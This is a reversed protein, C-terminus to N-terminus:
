WEKKMYSVFGYEEMSPQLLLALSPGTEVNNGANTVQLSGTVAVTYAGECPQWDFPRTANCLESLGM